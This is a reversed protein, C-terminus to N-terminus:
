PQPYSLNNTRIASRDATTLKVHCGALVDNQSPPSIKEPCEKLIDVISNSYRERAVCYAGTPTWSAEFKMGPAPELEQIPIDDWIDIWTGDHTHPIGNGCYDARAMRTCAQHYDRLEWPKYGWRTCKTIVGETCAITVAKEGHWAGADDWSGEFFTAKAVGSPDVLCLNQWEGSADKALLTYLWVDPSDAEADAILIDLAAGSSDVAQFTVGVFDAGSIPEGDETVGVLEAGELDVGQLKTGQMNWGQMKTGQMKTGQMKTGQMSWGQLVLGHRDDGPPHVQKQSSHAAVIAALIVLWTWRVM